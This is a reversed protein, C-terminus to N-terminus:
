IRFELLSDVLLEYQEKSHAPFNAFRLQTKKSPGYGDGPYLGKQQLFATAKETHSQCDAVIVTRSQFKKEQVFASLLPHQELAQYLIAAKYDTEKRITDIGRRLFDQVVKNLLYIGLVNPTEPTQNKVAHVKLSPINHYSGISFGKSLLQDAKAICKENVIWVGLGAPLGFGKQVSFFVSDLKTFDFQPYPLSSVADVAVLAHPNNEKLAYITELPLSVGTSTENHTVAILETGQPISIQPDFGLGEKVELKQPKKNLQVATEYFKKSFSGNVLHFSSEAVLNQIIREWVETASGTFFIHHSAPIGLLQRLGGTTESSIQEFLKSRHSLSPINEKFAQRAHDAVTFYLQSPGPTFNVHHVM